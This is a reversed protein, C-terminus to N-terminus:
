EAAPAALAFRQQWNMHVQHRAGGTYPMGAWYCWCPLAPQNSEDMVVIIVEFVFLFLRFSVICCM